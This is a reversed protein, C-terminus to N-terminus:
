KKASEENSTLEINLLLMSNFGLRHQKIIFLTLEKGLKQFLRYIGMLTYISISDNEKPSLRIFTKYNKKLIETKQVPTSTSFSIRFDLIFDFKKRVDFM